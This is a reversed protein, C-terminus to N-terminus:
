AKAAKAWRLMIRICYYTLVATVFATVHVIAADIPFLYNIYALWGADPSSFYQFPSDPLLLFAMDFLAKIADILGNLINVLM